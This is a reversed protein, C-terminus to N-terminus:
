KHEEIDALTKQIDKAILERMSENYKSLDVQTLAKIIKYNLNPKYKAISPLSKICQRATIPKEDVIHELYKDIIKEVRNEADWRANAAILVLGRTRIYSNDSSLMETFREFYPYVASSNMSIEELIKMSRYALNDNDDTLSKVLLDINAM